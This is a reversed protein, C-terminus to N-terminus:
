DVSFHLCRRHPPLTRRYISGCVLVLLLFSAVELLLFNLLPFLLHDIMYLVLTKSSVHHRRHVHVASPVSSHPSDGHLARYTQVAVKFVIREPVRLWHLSVLADTINDFRRLRFILMAAANQLVSQMCDVSLLM